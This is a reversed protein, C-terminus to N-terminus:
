FWDSAPIWTQGRPFLITLVTALDDPLPHERQQLVSAIPVYGFIAQTFAQPTLLLANATTGPADLLHLHTGAIRLTFAENGVLLSVDGTWHALSRQWRAQWEPLM